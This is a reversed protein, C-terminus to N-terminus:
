LPESSTGKMFRRLASIPGCKTGRLLLVPLCSVGNGLHIRAACKEHSFDFEHLLRIPFILARQISPLRM